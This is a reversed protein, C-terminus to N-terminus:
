QQSMLLFIGEKLIEPCNDFWFYPCFYRHVIGNAHLYELGALIQRTYNRIVGISFVGYNQLLKEVSGGPVWEQFVYIVSAHEDVQM